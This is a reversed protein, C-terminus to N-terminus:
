YAETKYTQPYARTVAVPLKYSDSRLLSLAHKASYMACFM